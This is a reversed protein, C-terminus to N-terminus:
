CVKGTVKDGDVSTIEVMREGIKVFKGDKDMVINNKYTGVFKSSFGIQM